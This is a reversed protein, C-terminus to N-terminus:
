VVQVDSPMKGGLNMLHYISYIYYRTLGNTMTHLVSQTHLNTM